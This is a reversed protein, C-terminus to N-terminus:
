YIPISLVRDVDPFVVNRFFNWIWATREQELMQQSTTVGINGRRRLSYNRTQTDTGSDADTQTGTDTDSTNYTMTDSGTRATTQTGTDTDSTNYTMTDTGSMVTTDTGTRSVTDTGTKVNTVTGDNDVTDTGSAAMTQTGTNATQGSPTYSSTNYAAVSNTTMLNDTRTDTKGHTTEQTLDDTRTDTTDYTTEDETNHTVTETTEPTRTETGTKAHTLNDTRTDTLDPRQTETGSKAHTLNNTRTTSHGYVTATQDNTMTEYMDYNEIPEYLLALTAYERTWSVSNISAIISALKAIEQASLADGSQIARILPSVLKEGSVNGHYELDLEEAIELTKWPVGPTLAQLATFIGGGSYWTAFADNIREQM